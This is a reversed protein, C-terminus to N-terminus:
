RLCWYARTSAFTPRFAGLAGVRIPSFTQLIPTLWTAVLVGALGGITALLLSETIMFRLLRRPSAGLALRVAIERERAVGRVLLLNAVNSCCIVLLVGVAIMLVVVSRENRGGIDSLLEQRLPVLKYEWGRRYQPYAQELQRAVTSIEASAQELTAGRRLRAVLDWGHGMRREMPLTEPDLRMPAWIEAHAPMDFGRPMVGVITWVGADTTISHGIISSEGGFRRQWLDYGLLAIAPAGPRDDDATFSRGVIPQVQLTLLYGANVTAATVRQPEDHGVLNFYTGAATGMTALTPVNDRFSAYDLPSTGFPDVGERMSLGFVVRDADPIPLPRVLLATAASFIATNAGIGLALTVVAVVTFGPQRRLLRAGYLLDQCFSDMERPKLSRRALPAPLAPAVERFRPSLPDAPMALDPRLRRRGRPTPGPRTFLARVRCRRTGLVSVRM